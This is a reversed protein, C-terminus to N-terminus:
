KRKESLVAIITMIVTVALLVFGMAYHGTMFAIVPLNTIMCVLIYDLLNKNKM